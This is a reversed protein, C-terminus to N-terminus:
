RLQRTLHLNLSKPGCPMVPLALIVPMEAKNKVGMSNLRALWVYATSCNFLGEQSISRFKVRPSCMRSQALRPHFVMNWLPPGETLCCPVFGLLQLHGSSCLGSIGRSQEKSHFELFDKSLFSCAQSDQNWSCSSVQKDNSIPCCTWHSHKSSSQLLCAFSLCKAACGCSDVREWVACVWIPCHLVSQLKWESAADLMAMTFRWKNCGGWSASRLSGGSHWRDLLDELFWARLVLDWCLPWSCYLTRQGKKQWSRRGEGSSEEEKALFKLLWNWLKISLDIYFLSETQVWKSASTYWSCAM